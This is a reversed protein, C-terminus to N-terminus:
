FLGESTEITKIAEFIEGMAIWAFSKAGFLKEEITSIRLAVMARELSKEPLTGVEGSLDNLIDDVLATTQERLKSMLDKRKRPQSCQAVISGVVAEEETLMADKKHSLSHDACITQLQSIYNRFLEWIEAVLDDDHRGISIHDEVRHQVAAFAEGDDYYGGDHFAELVEDLRRPQGNTVDRRQSRQASRATAVAPLDIERYLRGIAKTSQYYKTSDKSIVTEPANWDPKARFKYKPIKTLPVPRGSKPYDVADSHLASLTLCDQDFIGQSSQDAIVLWATAIIGLSDSNIYETVFDAVDQMTSPRDLLMKQAPDYAAPAYTRRPRLSELM